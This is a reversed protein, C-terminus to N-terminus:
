GMLWQHIPQHWAHLGLVLLVMAGAAVDRRTFSDAKGHSRVFSLVLGTPCGYKCYAMPVVAAALLGAIAITITAIGATRLQYAAFPEIASLRAPNGRLTIFLVCVILLAPIVRLSRELARPLALPRKMWRHSLRGVLEQAAGHPCIQSCYVQRRTAWPAILAAAALLVLGPATGWPISNASWGAFLSQALLQGNYFGVYGILGAQFARRLWVSSRLRTFSFLLALVIVIALGIDGQRVQVRRLGAWADTAVRRFRGIRTMPNQVADPAAKSFRRHIGNAISVSTLSAGSVGEIGAAKPDFGAVEDWTKGNWTGMFAEDTAVDDVYKQTEQSTRIKIGLVKPANKDPTLAVLTDTPGRYGPLDDSAPSTRLVYGVAHGASDLVWLGMRESDDFDLRAASPFFSRVEEIRITDKVMRQQQTHHRRILWVIAVIVALRYLRLLASKLPHARPALPRDGPQIVNLQAM